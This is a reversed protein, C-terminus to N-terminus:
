PGQRARRVSGLTWEVADVVAPWGEERTVLEMHGVLARFFAVDGRCGRAFAEGASPHCMLRDREGLVSAVPVTVNSLAALYDDQGDRSKWAGETVGRFLDRLYADPADDSGVRLRRAPMSGVRESIALISRAVARKAIWRMTSAECPRLWVNTAVAVIGAADIRGTGQAALAVHGGLSHGVVIVPGDDARARACEVVAPLDHRVLEDYGWSSSPATSDGHGRFDFAVARLGRAALRHALGPQDPAGFSSRRAFMAHALIATARLPTGPPPDLVVARLVAGDSTRIELEDFSARPMAISPRMKWKRKSRRRDRPM